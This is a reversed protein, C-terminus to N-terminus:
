YDFNKAYSEAVAELPEVKWGNSARSVFVKPQKEDFPRYIYAEPIDDEPNEPTEYGFRFGVVEGYNTHAYSQSWSMESRHMEALWTFQKGLKNFEKKEEESLEQYDKPDKVKLRLPHQGEWGGGGKWIEELWAAAEIPDTPLSPEAEESERKELNRRGGAAEMNM